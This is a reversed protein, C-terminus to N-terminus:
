SGEWMNRLCRKVLRLDLHVNVILYCGDNTFRPRMKTRIRGTTVHLM